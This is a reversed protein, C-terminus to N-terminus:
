FLEFEGPNLLDREIKEVAAAEEKAVKSTEKGGLQRFRARGTTAEFYVDLPREGELSQHRVPISEAALFERAFEANRRPVGVTTVGIVKSAGFLKAEFRSRQGGLKMIGNILLEMAHIGYRASVAPDSTSAPLLFHNMGGVKAVPDYMCAAICSGLVTSVWLPENSAKVDGLVIRRVPADFGKVARRSESRRRTPRRQVQARVLPARRVPVVRSSAIMGLPLGGPRTGEAVTPDLDAGRADVVPAMIVPPWPPRVTRRRARADGMQHVTQGVSVLRDCLGNLNESHGAFFFGPPDLRDTFRALLREQTQRDFYIMVNRCFIVDFRERPLSADEILNVRRFEIRQRVDDRVRISGEGHPTVLPRTTAPLDARREAPYIGDAARRLVMTDIDTALIRVKWGAAAPLIDHLAMAISYPEEGTSCGASWIRMQQNGTQNARARLLPVVQQRLFSFHHPERFFSTKNTTLCNIFQVQEAEGGQELHRLYDRYSDLGLERMRKGLRGAVLERKQESLRIGSWRYVLERFRELEKDTMPAVNM